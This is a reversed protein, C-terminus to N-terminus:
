GVVCWDSVASSAHLAAASPPGRWGDLLLRLSDNALTVPSRTNIPLRSRPYLKTKPAKGGGGGKEEQGIQIGKGVEERQGRAVPLSTGVLMLLMRDTLTKERARTTVTM